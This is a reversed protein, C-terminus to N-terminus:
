SRPRTGSGGSTIFLKVIAKFLGGGKVTAAEEATLDVIDESSSLDTTENANM